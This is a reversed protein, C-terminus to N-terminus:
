VVSRQLQVMSTVSLPAQQPTAATGTFVNLLGRNYLVSHPLASNNEMEKIMALVNDEYGVWNICMEHAEDLAVSHGRFGM